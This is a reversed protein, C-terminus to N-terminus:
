QIRRKHIHCLGNYKIFTFYHKKTGTGKIQRLCSLTINKIFIGMMDYLKGSDHIIKPM